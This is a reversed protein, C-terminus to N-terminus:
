NEALSVTDLEWMERGDPPTQVETSAPDGQNEVSREERKPVASREIGFCEHLSCGRCEARRRKVALTTLKGPYQLRM